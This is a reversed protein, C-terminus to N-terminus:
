INKRGEVAMITIDDRLPTPVNQLYSVISELRSQMSVKNNQELLIKLGEVELPLGNSGYGETVGDTFIYLNSNDLNFSKEPFIEDGVQKIIGM